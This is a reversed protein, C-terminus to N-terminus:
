LGRRLKKRKIFSNANNMANLIGKAGGVKLTTLLLVKSANIYDQNNLFKSFLKNMKKIIPLRRPKKPIVYM